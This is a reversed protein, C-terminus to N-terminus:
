TLGGSDLKDSSPNTRVYFDNNDLYCPELSAKYEVALKTKNEIKLSVHIILKM